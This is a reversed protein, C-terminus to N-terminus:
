FNVIQKAFMENSVSYRRYWCKKTHHWSWSNSKLKTLVKEEPKRYFYIEIGSQEYNRKVYGINHKIPECAIVKPTSNAKASVPKQPSTYYSSHTRASAPKSPSTYYSSNIGYTTKRTNQTVYVTKATSSSTNTSRTYRSASYNNSSPYSPYTNFHTHYGDSYRGTERMREDVRERIEEDYKALGM